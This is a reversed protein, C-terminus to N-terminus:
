KKKLKKKKMKEKNIKYPVNLCCCSVPCFKFYKITYGRTAQAEEEAEEAEEEEAAAAADDTEASM